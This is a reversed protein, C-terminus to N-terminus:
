SSKYINNSNQRLRHCNQLAWLIGWKFLLSILSLPKFFRAMPWVALSSTSTPTWALHGSRSDSRGATIGPLHCTYVFTRGQFTMSLTPFKTFAAPLPHSASPKFPLPTLCPQCPVTPTCMLWPCYAQHLQTCWLAVPLDSHLHSISLIM